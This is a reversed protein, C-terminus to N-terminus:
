RKGSMDSVPVPALGRFVIGGSFTSSIPVACSGGAAAITKSSALAVGDRSISVRLPGKLTLFQRTQYHCIQLESNAQLDLQTGNGVGDLTELLTPKGELFAVVRGSVHEVIAVDTAEQAAYGPNAMVAGVTSSLLAAAIFAVTRQLKV